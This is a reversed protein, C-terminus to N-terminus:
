ARAAGDQELHSGTPLSASLTHVLLPTKKSPTFQLSYSIDQVIRQVRCSEWSLHVNRQRVSRQDPKSGKARAKKARAKKRARPELKIRPAHALAPLQNTGM